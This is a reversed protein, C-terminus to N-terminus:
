VQVDTRYIVLRVLSRLRVEVQGYQCVPDDRRGFVYQLFLADVDTPLFKKADHAGLLPDRHNGLLVVAMEEFHAAAGCGFGLKGFDLIGESYCRM